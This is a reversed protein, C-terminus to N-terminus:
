LCTFCICWLVLLEAIFYYVVLLLQSNYPILFCTLYIYMGESFPHVSYILPLCSFPSKYDTFVTPFYMSKNDLIVTSRLNLSYPAHKFHSGICLTYSCSGSFLFILEWPDETIRVFPCKEWPRVLLVTFHYIILCRRPYSVNGYVCLIRLVHFDSRAVPGAISCSSTYSITLNM